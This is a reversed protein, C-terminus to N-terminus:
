RMQSRAGCARRASRWSVGARPRGQARADFLEEHTRAFESIFHGLAHIRTREARLEALELLEQLNRMVELEIWRAGAAPMPPCADHFRQLRGALEVIQPARLEGRELTAALTAAEDYRRM